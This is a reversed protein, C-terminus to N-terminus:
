GDLHKPKTVTVTVNGGAQAASIMLLLERDKRSLGSTDIGSLSVSDGQPTKKEGSERWSKSSKPKEPFWGLAAQLVSFVFYASSYALVFLWFVLKILEM